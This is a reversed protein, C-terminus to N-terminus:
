RWLGGLDGLIVIIVVVVAYGLLGFSYKKFRNSIKKDVGLYLGWVLFCGVSGLCTLLGSLVLFDFM